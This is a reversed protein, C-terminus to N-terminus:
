ESAVAIDIINRIPIIQRILGSLYRVATWLSRTTVHVELPGRYIDSSLFGCPSIINATRNKRKYTYLDIDAQM